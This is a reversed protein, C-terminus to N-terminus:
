VAMKNEPLPKVDRTNTTEVKEKLDKDYHWGEFRYGERKPIPLDDYSDPSCAIGIHMSDIKEECNTEFYLNYAGGCIPVCVSKKKKFKFMKDCGIKNYCFTSSIM